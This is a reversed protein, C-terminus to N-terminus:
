SGDIIHTSIFRCAEDIIQHDNDILKGNADKIKVREYLTPTSSHYYEVRALDDVIIKLHTDWDKGTSGNSSNDYSEKCNKYAFSCMYNLMLSNDSTRQLIKINTSAQATIMIALRIYEKKLFILSLLSIIKIYNEQNLMLISKGGGFFKGFFGASIFKNFVTPMVKFYTFYKFTEEFDNSDIDYLRMVRNCVNNTQSNILVDIDCTKPSSISDIELQSFSSDEDSTSKFVVRTEIQNEYSEKFKSEMGSKIMSFVYIMIDSKKDLLDVNIFNRTFLNSYIYDAMKNQTWGRFIVNLNNNFVKKFKKVQNLIYSFLKDIIGQYKRIFLNKFIASAHMEKLSCDIPGRIGTILVGFIPAYLKALLIITVIEHVHSLEFTSEKTHHPMSEKRTNGMPVNAIAFKKIKACLDLDKECKDIKQAIETIMGPIIRVDSKRMGELCTLHLDLIHVVLKEQETKSLETFFINILGFVSQWKYPDRKGQCIKNFSSTSFEFLSDVYGNKPVNLNLIKLKINAREDTHPIYEMGYNQNIKM